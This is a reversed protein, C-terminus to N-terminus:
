PAKLRVAELRVHDPEDIAEMRVVGVTNSVRMEGLRRRGLRPGALVPNEQRVARRSPQRGPNRGELVLTAGDDSGVPYALVDGLPHGRLLLGPEVGVEEPGDTLRDDGGIEAAADAVPARAGFAQVAPGGLLHETALDGLHDRSRRILLIADLGSAPQGPPFPPGARELAPPPVAGAEECLEGCGRHQVAVAM